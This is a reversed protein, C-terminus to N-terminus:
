VVGYYKQLVSVDKEAFIQKMEVDVVQQFNLGQFASYKQLLNVDM